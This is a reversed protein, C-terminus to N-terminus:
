LAIQRLHREAATDFVAVTLVGEAGRRAHAAAQLGIQEAVCAPPLGRQPLVGDVGDDDVAPRRCLTQGNWDPLNSPPDGGPVAELEDRSCHHDPSPCVLAAVQGYRASRRSGNM